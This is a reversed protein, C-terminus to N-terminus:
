SLVGGLALVPSNLLRGSFTGSLRVARDVCLTIGINLITMGAVSYFIPRSPQVAIEALLVLPVTLFWRSALFARYGRMAWLRDRLGALLCGCALADAVTHFEAGIGLRHDPLLQYQLGRICPSLAVVLGAVMLGRRRGLLALTLPWLLYFQEEVALSWIHGM